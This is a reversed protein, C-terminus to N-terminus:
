LGPALVHVVLAEGVHPCSATTRTVSSPVDRRRATPPAWPGFPSMGLSLSSYVGYFLPRASLIESHPTGPFSGCQTDADSCFGALFIPTAVGGVLGGILLGTGTHSRTSLTDSRWPGSIPAFYRQATEPANLLVGDSSWSPLSAGLAQGQLKASSGLCLGIVLLPPITRRSLM